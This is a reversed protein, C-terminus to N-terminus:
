EDCNPCSWSVFRPTFLVKNGLLANYEEFDRLFDLARDDSSSYYFDYEVRNDPNEMIFDALLVVRDEDTKHVQMFQKLKLGDKKSILMSPIKIGTGTTDDSMIIRNIDEDTNDIIM